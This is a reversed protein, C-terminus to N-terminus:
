GKAGASRVVLGPRSWVEFGIVAGAWVARAEGRLLRAYIASVQTLPCGAAERLFTLTLATGLDVATPRGEAGIVTVGFVDDETRAARAPDTLALHLAEIVGAEDFSVHLEFLPAAWRIVRAAGEIEIAGKKRLGGAGVLASAFLEDEGKGLLRDRDRAALARMLVARNKAAQADSPDSALVAGLEAIAAEHEGLGALTDALTRRADLHAPDLRVAERYAALAAGLDRRAEEVMGLAFRARADEPAAIVAEALAERAEDYRRQRYRLVGLDHLLRADKPGGAAAERLDEAAEDIRGLRGLARGRERRAERAGGPDVEIARGLAIVAEPWHDIAAYATGLALWAGADSPEGELHAKLDAIGGATDGRVLRELGRDRLGRESEM